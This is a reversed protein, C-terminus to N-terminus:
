ETARGLGESLALLAFSALWHTGVYDGEATHPLASELHLRRSAEVKVRLSPAMSEQILGFCWARSLNLGDLHALRADSRDPVDAPLFWRALGEEDPCFREWWTGFADPGLVEHMLAAEVLGASLFDDPGPEYQAPYQRDCGYWAQARHKILADFLPRSEIRAYRLALLLAFATNSHSGVRAPVTAVPLFTSFRDEVIRALPLLQGQWLLAEDDNRACRALECSLMLLWGWGYPREFTQSTPRLFYDCEVKVAEASWQHNFHERILNSEALDPFLRLLRVLLWHMHVSSHWDYSGYFLPHLTRPAAWDNAKLILHDLKHPYERVVNALALRAFRTARLADITDIV